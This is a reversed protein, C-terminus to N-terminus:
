ALAEQAGTPAADRGSVYAEVREDWEGRAALLREAFERVAGRGGERTLRLASAARVEPVANGVAVPLGVMRLAGLDPLDDGVFAVERADLGRRALM